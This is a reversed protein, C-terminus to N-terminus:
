FPDPPCLRLQHQYDMFNFFSSRVERAITVQDDLLEQPNFQVTTFQTAIRAPVAHYRYNKGVKKTPGWLPLNLYVTKDEVKSLAAEILDAKKVCDIVPFTVTREHMFIQSKKFRFPSSNEQQFLRFDEEFDLNGASSYLVAYDISQIRPHHCETAVGPFSDPLPICAANTMVSFPALSTTPTTDPATVAEAIENETDLPWTAHLLARVLGQSDIAVSGSNGSIISCGKFSVVPSFDDRYSPVLDTNQVSTCTKRKLIAHGPQHPVPDFAFVTLETNDPIGARSIPFSPRNVDRDLYIVAYDPRKAPLDREDSSSGLSEDSLHLIRECTAREEAFLPTKPFIATLMRHCLNPDQKVETPVCHNNTVLIRKAVLFASCRAPNKSTTLDGGLLLAGGGPCESPNFRDCKALSSSSFAQLSKLSLIGNSALQTDIGPTGDCAVLATFSLFLLISFIRCM